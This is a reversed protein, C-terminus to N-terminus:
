SQVVLAEQERVGVFEDFWKFVETHWRLSNQPNLVWHNEKAFYLLRSPIGRRQCATFAAIGQSDPIRFDTLATSEPGILM